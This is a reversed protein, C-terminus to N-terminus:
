WVAIYIFANNHDSFLGSDTEAKKLQHRRGSKKDVTEPENTFKISKYVL